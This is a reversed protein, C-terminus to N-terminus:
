DSLKFRSLEKTLEQSVEALGKCANACSDARHTTEDTNEENQRIRQLVVASIERQNSAKDAVNLVQHRLGDISEAIQDLATGTAASLKRNEAMEKLSNNSKAVANAIRGHIQVLVNEIEKTAAATKEALKRVEDAVVAFGRGQEGARAAEIAANLALLNTQDAIERISLSIKQIEQSHDALNGIDQTLETVAENMRAIGQQAREVTKQGTTASERTHESDEVAAATSTSIGDSAENLSGVLGVIQTSNDRNFALKATLDDMLQNIVNAEQSVRGSLSSIGSVMGRMNATMQRFSSAISGIIDRSELDCKATLNGSGIQEAVEAMRTLRSLLVVNLIVYAFVGISVGAVVCGVVFWILMGPKWEVFFQAYFPFILAVTVGFGIYSWRLRSLISSGM